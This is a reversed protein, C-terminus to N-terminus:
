AATRTGRAACCIFGAMAQGCSCSSQTRARRGHRRGADTRARDARRPKGCAHVDPATRPPSATAGGYAIVGAHREGASRNSGAARASPGVPAPCRRGHRARVRRRSWRRWPMACLPPRITRPRDTRPTGARCGARVACETCLYGPPVNPLSRATLRRDVTQLRRYETRAGCVTSQLGCVCVSPTDTFRTKNLRSSATAM